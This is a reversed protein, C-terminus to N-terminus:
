HVTTMVHSVYQFFAAPYNEIVVFNTDRSIRRFVHTIDVEKLPKISEISGTVSVFVLGKKKLYFSKLDIPNKVNPNLHGM